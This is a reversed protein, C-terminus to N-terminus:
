VGEPAEFRFLTGDKITYTTTGDEVVKEIEFYIIYYKQDETNAYKIYVNFDENVNEISSSIAFGEKLTVINSEFDYEVNQMESNTLKYYLVVNSPCTFTSEEAFIYISHNVDFATNEIINGTADKSIPWIISSHAFFVKKLTQVMSFAYPAITTVNIDSVKLPCVFIEGTKYEPYCLLTIEDGALNKEYLVGDQTIYRSSSGSFSKIKSDVFVQEGILTLTSPIEFTEFAVGHLASKGIEALATLNSFNVSELKKCEYFLNNSITTLNSNNEFNITTLNECNSFASEGIFSVSGPITISQLFKNNAFAYKCIKVSGELVSYETQSFATPVYVLFKQNLENELYFPVTMDNFLKTDAIAEISFKEVNIKKSFKIDNLASCGHFSNPEVETVSDSMEVTTLKTLNKFYYRYITTIKTGLLKVETLNPINGFKDTLCFSNLDGAFLDYLSLSSLKTCGTFINGYVNDVSYPIIAQKLNLCASFAYEEILDIKNGLFDLKELSECGAFSYSGIRRLNDANLVTKLKKNNYFTKEKLYIEIGAFDIKSLISCNEFSSNEIGTVKNTLVVETLNSNKFASEGIYTVKDFPFSTIKTGLFANKGIALSDCKIILKSLKKGSFVNELIENVEYDVNNQRYYKPIVVTENNLSYRSVIANSGSITFELGESYYFKELNENDWNGVLEIMQTTDSSVGTTLIEDSDKYSWGLFYERLKTVAVNALNTTSGLPQNEIVFDNLLYSYDDPLNYDFSVSYYSTPTIIEDENSVNGNGPTNKDKNKKCASFSFCMPLLLLFLLYKRFKKM